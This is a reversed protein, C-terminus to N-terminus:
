ISDRKIKLMNIARLFQKGMKMKIEIEEENKEIRIPTLPIFIKGQDFNISLCNQWSSM